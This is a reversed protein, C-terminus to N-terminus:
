QYGRQGHRRRLRDAANCRRESEVELIPSAGGEKSLFVAENGDKRFAM